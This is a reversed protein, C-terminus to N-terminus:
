ARAAIGTRSKKEMSQEYRKVASWTNRYGVFQEINWQLTMAFDPVEIENFPFKVDAYGNEMMRREFPWYRGLLDKYCTLILADIDDRLQM